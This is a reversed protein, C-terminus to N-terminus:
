PSIGQTLNQVYITLDFYNNFLQNGARERGVPPSAPIGTEPVCKHIKGIYKSRDVAIMVVDAM